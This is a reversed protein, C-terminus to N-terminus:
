SNNNNNNNNNDVVDVIRRMRSIRMMQLFMVVPEPIDGEIIWEGGGFKSALFNRSWKWVQSKESVDTYERDRDNWDYRLSPATIVGNSANDYWILSIGNWKGSGFMTSLKDVGILMEGDWRYSLSYPVGMSSKLLGEKTYSWEEDYSSKIEGGKICDKFVSKLLRHKDLPNLISNEAQKYTQLSDIAIVWEILDNHDESSLSLKHRDSKGLLTVSGYIEPSSGIKGQWSTSKFEMISYSKLGINSSENQFCSM